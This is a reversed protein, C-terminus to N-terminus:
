ILWLSAANRSANSAILFLDNGSLKFDYSLDNGDLKMLWDNAMRITMSWEAPAAGGPGLQKPAM